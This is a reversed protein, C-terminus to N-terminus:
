IKDFFNSLMKMSKLILQDNNSVHAICYDVVVLVDLIAWFILIENILPIMAMSLDHGHFTLMPIAVALVPKLGESNVNILQIIYLHM